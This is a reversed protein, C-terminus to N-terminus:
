EDIKEDPVPEPDIGNKNVIWSEILPAPRYGGYVVKVADADLGAKKAAQELKAEILRRSRSVDYEDKDAYFIVVARWTEDRALMEAVEGAYDKEAPKAQVRANGIYNEGLPEVKTKAEDLNVYGIGLSELKERDDAAYERANQPQPAAAELPVIWLEATMKDRLGGFQFVVRPPDVRDSFHRAFIETKRKAYFETRKFASEDLGNYFILYGVAPGNKRLAEVFRNIKPGFERASVDGFEDFKVARATKAGEQAAASFVCALLLLVTRWFNMPCRLFIVVAPRDAAAGRM